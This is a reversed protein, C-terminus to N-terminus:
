LRDIIFNVREAFPMFPVVMVDYGLELYAEEHLVRLRQVMELPERRIKDQRYGPISDFVFIGDYRHEQFAKAYAPTPEIGLYKFYAFEDAIGRDIFAIESDAPIKAELELQKEILAELFVDLKAWPLADGGCELQESIIITAAEPVTAFGYRAFENITSTKGSYSSGTFIYKKTM